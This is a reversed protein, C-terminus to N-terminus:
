AAYGPSVSILFLLATTTVGGNPLGISSVYSRWFVNAPGASMATRLSLSPLKRSTIGSNDAVDGFLLSLGTVTTFNGAFKSLNQDTSRLVCRATRNSYQGSPAVRYASTAVTIVMQLTGSRFDELKM